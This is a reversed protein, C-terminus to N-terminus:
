RFRMSQRFRGYDHSAVGNRQSGVYQPRGAALELTIRGGAATIVGAHLAAPCVSSDSTYFESGWVTGDQLAEESCLCSFSTVLDENVSMREPCPEPRAPESTGVFHISSSYAGYDNSRVGNRRTGPYLDRGGRRELTVMGGAPPIAGAHAAARCLASDSTYVDTGWVAGDRTSADDCRCTFPTPLDPNVSFRQPCPGPGAAVAAGGEFRISRGYSGFDASHVGNRVSGVYLDRGSERWVTIKGGARPIVGAHLAAQCLGSDETYIDSGWVAGARTLEASCVCTFPTPADPVTALVMPCHEDPAVLAGSRTDPPQTVAQQTVDDGGGTLLMFMGAVVALAMGGVVVAVGRWRWPNPAGPPGPPQSTSDNRGGRVAQALRQWQAARPAQLADIWHASSAFLEMERDPLVDGIRVTFVSKGKSAARELERYVILSQNAEASLLLVFVPCAEIGDIIAAAYDNGPTLDRPAIWCAIGAQELHSCLELATAADESAHSIFVTRAASM